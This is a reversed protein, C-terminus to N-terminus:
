DKEYGGVCGFNAIMSEFSVFPFFLHVADGLAITQGGRLLFQAILIVHRPNVVASM